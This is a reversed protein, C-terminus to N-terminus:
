LREPRRAWEDPAFNGGASKLKPAFETHEEALGDQGNIFNRYPWASPSGYTAIRHRGQVM